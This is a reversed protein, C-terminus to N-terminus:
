ANWRLSLMSVALAFLYDALLQSPRLLMYMFSYIISNRLVVAILFVAVIQSLHGYIFAHILEAV